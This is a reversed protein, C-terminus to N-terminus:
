GSTRIQRVYDELREGERTKEITWREEALLARVQKRAGDDRLREWMVLFQPDDSREWIEQVRAEDGVTVWGLRLEGQEDWVSFVEEGKRDERRLQLPSGPDFRPIQVADGLESDLRVYFAYLGDEPDLKQWSLRQDDRLRHLVYGQGDDSKFWELVFDVGDLEPPLDLSPSAGREGRTASRSRRGTGPDSSKGSTAADLVYRLAAM